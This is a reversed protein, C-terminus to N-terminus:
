QSLRRCEFRLTPRIEFRPVLPQQWQELRSADDESVGVLRASPQHDAHEVAAAAFSLDAGPKALQTYVTLVYVDDLRSGIMASAVSRSLDVVDDAAQLDPERLKEAAQAEGGEPVAHSAEDGGRM